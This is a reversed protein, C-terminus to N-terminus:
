LRPYRSMLFKLAKKARPVKEIEQRITIEDRNKINGLYAIFQEPNKIYFFLLAPLKKYNRYALFRNSKTKLDTFDSYTYRWEKSFRIFINEFITKGGKSIMENLFSKYINSNQLSLLYKKDDQAIKEVLKDKFPHNEKIAKLMQLRIFENAKPRNPYELEFSLLAAERKFKFFTEISKTFFDDQQKESLKGSKDGILEMLTNEARTRKEGVSMLRIKILSEIVETPYSAFLVKIFLNTSPDDFVTEFFNRGRPDRPNRHLL